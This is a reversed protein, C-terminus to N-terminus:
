LVIAELLDVLILKGEEDELFFAGGAPMVLVYSLDWM